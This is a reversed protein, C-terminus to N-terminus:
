GSAKNVVAESSPGVPSSPSIMSQELIVTGLVLTEEGIEGEKNHGQTSAFRNHFNLRCHCLALRDEMASPSPPDSRESM